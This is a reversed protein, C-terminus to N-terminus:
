WRTQSRDMAALKATLDAILDYLAGARGSRKAALIGTLRSVAETVSRPRVKTTIQM